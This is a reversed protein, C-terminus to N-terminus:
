KPSADDGSSGVPHESNDSPANVIVETEILLNIGTIIKYSILFLLEIAHVLVFIGILSFLGPFGALWALLYGIYLGLVGVLVGIPVNRVLIEQQSTLKEDM